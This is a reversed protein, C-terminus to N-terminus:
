LPCFLTMTKDPDAEAITADTHPYEKYLREFDIAQKTNRNTSTLNFHLLLSLTTGFFSYRM